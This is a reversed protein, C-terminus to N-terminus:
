SGEGGDYLGTLERAYKEAVVRRKVKLTPTLEGTEQSFPHELLAFRRVREFDALEKTHADIETKFLRRVDPHELLARAPETPIGRETAWSKLREFNPVVLAVVVPKKDGFLAVTAVYPSAIIKSEIPQPAVNKGNALVLIDKKRDTIRLYGDPDLKGVDGTHFWGESDIVQATAEPQNFYGSMIHPGITLIEGDEAIRVQVGPIPPGVSGIKAKGPRNITIVPSTETLGYGQLLTWGVGQYFRQTDPSLPAGGTIFYRLRAGAVRARLKSLVLRDALRYELSTLAGPREGAVRPGNYRAGVDLAWQFLRRERAPRQAVQEEIGAQINEYLRPVCCFLTPEIEALERKLHRLGQSYVITSGALVPLYHGAMREFVHALPLFSLFVDEPGIDVLEPLSQANSTLNDHTLMAGKPLGTTGSTYIISALDGPQVAHWLREFETAGGPASAGRAEVSAFSNVGEPPDGEADILILHRLDPLQSRVEEAKRLQKEDEVILAVAGSDAVIHRVQPPPLTSYLPVNVAGLSLIALDAIGWEPRNESLLAVRDGKRVGLEALGLALRMVREGLERYTLTVWQKRERHKMAPRDAHRDISRRLMQPVTIEPFPRELSGAERLATGPRATADRAEDQLRTWAKGERARAIGVAVAATGVVAAAIGAKKLAGGGGDRGNTSIQSQGELASEPAEATPTSREEM